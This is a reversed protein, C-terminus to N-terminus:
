NIDNKTYKQSNETGHYLWFIERDDRCEITSVVTLWKLGIICLSPRWLKYLMKERSYELHGEM